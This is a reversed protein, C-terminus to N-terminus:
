ETMSHVYGSTRFTYNVLPQIYHHNFLICTQVLCRIKIYTGLIFCILSCIWHIDLYTLLYLGQTLILPYYVGYHILWYIFTANLIITNWLLYNDPTILLEELICLLVHIHIWKYTKLPIYLLISILGANWM